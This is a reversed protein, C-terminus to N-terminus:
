RAVQQASAAQLKFVTIQPGRDRGGRGGGGFGGAGGFGSRGGFGGSGGFGRSPMVRMMMPDQQLPYGRTNLVAELVKLGQDLPVPQPLLITVPGSLGPDKILTEGSAMSFFKLVNDIDVDRFDLRILRQPGHSATGNGNGHGNRPQEAGGGMGEAGTGPRE